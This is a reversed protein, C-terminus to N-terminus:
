ALSYLSHNRSESLLFHLIIERDRNEPKGEPWLVKRLIRLGFCMFLNNNKKKM